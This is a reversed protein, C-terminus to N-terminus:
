PVGGRTWAATLAGATMFVLVAVLARRSRLGLGCVGHGSTCGRGLGAGLGVLLGGVVLRPAGHAAPPLAAPLWALLLLGGLWLGALFALRWARDGRPGALLGGVIGSVGAIRGALGFLVLAAVGILVGGALPRLVSAPDVRALM